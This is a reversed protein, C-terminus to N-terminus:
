VVLFLGLIWWWGDICEVLNRAFMLLVLARGGVNRLFGGVVVSMESDGVVGCSVTDSVLEVLVRVLLFEGGSGVM